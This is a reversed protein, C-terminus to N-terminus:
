KVICFLVELCFSKLLHNIGDAFYSKCWCIFMLSKYHGFWVCLHFLKPTYLLFTQSPGRVNIKHYIYGYKIKMYDYIWIAKDCVGFHQFLKRFKKFRSIYKLISIIINYCQYLQNITNHQALHISITYVTVKLKLRKVGHVGTKDLISARTMKLTPVNKLTRCAFRCSGQICGQLVRGGDEDPEQASPTYARLAFTWYIFLLWGKKGGTETQVRANRRFFIFFPQASIICRDGCACCFMARGPKVLAIVFDHIIGYCFIYTFSFSVISM